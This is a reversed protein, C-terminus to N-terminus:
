FLSAQRKAAELEAATPALRAFYPRAADLRVTEGADIRLRANDPYTALKELASVHEAAGVRRWTAGGDVSWEYPRRDPPAEPMTLQFGSM